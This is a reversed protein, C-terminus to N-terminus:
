GPSNRQQMLLRDRRLEMHFNALGQWENVKPRLLSMYVVLFLFFLSNFVIMFANPGSFSVLLTILIFPTAMLICFYAVWGWKRLRILLYIIYPTCVVNIFLVFGLAPQWLYPVGYAFEVAPPAGWSMVSNLKKLYYLDSTSYTNM